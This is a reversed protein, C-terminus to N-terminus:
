KGEFEEQLEPCDEMFADMEKYFETM